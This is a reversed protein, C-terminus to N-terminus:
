QIPSNMCQEAQELIVKTLHELAPSQQKWHHWYLPVDCSCEPLIEILTGNQIRDAIQYDPVLGYGLGSFIADAFATSSPIYHFPFCQQNLGFQALLLHSHLHDQDNYIVAPAKRLSERHIGQKFWSHVFAPTAVMRYHMQGIFHAKCGPMAESESSICANVQGQELLKHTESQVAVQLNLTIKEALLTTNLCPFLWTALSDANVAIHISSFEAKNQGNLQQILQQQLLRQHQLYNLLTQGANTVKCPRERLVLVQGL